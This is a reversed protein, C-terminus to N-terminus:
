MTDARAASRVRHRIFLLMGVLVIALGAILVLRDLFSARVDVATEEVLVDEAWLQVVLRGSLSQGLDVPVTTFNEQPRVQVTEDERPPVSMRSASTRLRLALTKESGNTISIPIEGSTGSLTIDSAGLEIADFVSSSERLSAAAIARGRDASGWNRDPGAWLASQALLSLDSARQADPDNVGVAALFASASKRAEGVESWYGSPADPVPAVAATLELSGSAPLAAAQSATAFTAWPAEKLDALCPLLSAMSSRYGPGTEVVATIPGTADESITRMFVMQACRMVGTSELSGSFADDTVVAGLGTGAIRYVGSTPTSASSELSRADVVVFDAGAAELVPAAAAPFADGTSVVGASPSTELAAYAASHGRLLHVNLDSLRGSAQMAGIDPQSYPVDALELRGTALAQKLSALTRAYAKPTEADAPVDVVGEVGAVSYGQSARLWEELIAPAIALTLRGTPDNLIYRAIADAEDRARTSQSPDVIFRGEADTSPASEIKVIVAVPVPAAKPDSLLLSDEIVWERVGATSQTRVRLEIPYVDPALGLDALDRSYAIDVSGTPVDSRVETKQFLLRGSPNRIQIRSELYTTPKDVEISVRFAFAGAFPTSVTGKDLTVYPRGSPSLAESRVPAGGAVSAGLALTTILTTALLALTRRRPTRALTM